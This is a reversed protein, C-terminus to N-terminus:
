IIINNKIDTKEPYIKRVIPIIAPILAFLKALIDFPKESNYGATAQITNMNTQRKESSCYAM